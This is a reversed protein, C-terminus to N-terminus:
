SALETSMSRLERLEDLDTKFKGAYREKFLGTKAGIFYVVLAVVIVPTLEYALASWLGASKIARPLFPLPFSIAAVMMLILSRKIHKWPKEFIRIIKKLSVELSASYMNVKQLEMYSKVSLRTLIILCLGVVAMPIYQVPHNFDFPNTFLAIAIILIWATNSVFSFRYLNAIRSLRSGSRERIMSLIIKENISNVTKLKEDYANWASKLEALNM